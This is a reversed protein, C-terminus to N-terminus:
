LHKVVPRLVKCMAVTKNSSRPNVFINFIELTMHAGSSSQYWLARTLKRLASADAFKWLSCLKPAHKSGKSAVEPCNCFLDENFRMPKAVLTASRGKDEM